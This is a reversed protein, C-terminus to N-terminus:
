TQFELLKVLISHFQELEEQNLPSFFDNAHFEIIERLLLGLDAGSDTLSILNENKQKGQEKTICDVQLLKKVMESVAQPSIGLLQAMTRQNQPGERSLLALTKRASHSLNLEMLKDWHEAYSLNTPTINKPEALHETLSLLKELTKASEVM